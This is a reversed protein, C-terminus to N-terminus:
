AISECRIARWNHQPYNGRGKPFTRLGIYDGHDEVDAVIGMIDCTRKLEETVFSVDDELGDCGAIFGHVEPPLIVGPGTGDNPHPDFFRRKAM